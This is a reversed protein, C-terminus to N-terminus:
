LDSPTLPHTSENHLRLRRYVEELDGRPFRVSLAFSFSPPGIEELDSGLEPDVVINNDWPWFVEYHWRHDREFDDYDIDSPTWHCRIRQYLSWPDPDYEEAVIDLFRQAKEARSFEIWIRGEDCFNQCSNCTWLDARWIEEILPAIEADVEAERTGLKIRTQEHDAM